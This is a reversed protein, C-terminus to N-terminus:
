RLGPVYCMGIDSTVGRTPTDLTPARRQPTFPPSTDQGGGLAASGTPADDGFPDTDTRPRPRWARETAKSSIDESSEKPMLQAFRSEGRMTGYAPRKEGPPQNTSAPIAFNGFNGMPSM